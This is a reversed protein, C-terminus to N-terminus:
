KTVDSLSVGLEDVHIERVCNDLGARHSTVVFQNDIEVDSICVRAEGVGSLLREKIIHPTYM